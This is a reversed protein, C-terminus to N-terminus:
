LPIRPHRKSASAASSFGPLEPPGCSQSQMVRSKAPVSYASLKSVKCIVFLGLATDLAHSSAASPKERKLPLPAGCVRRARIARIHRQNEAWCRVRSILKVRVAAIQQPTPWGKRHRVSLLHTEPMICAFVTQSISQIIESGHALM